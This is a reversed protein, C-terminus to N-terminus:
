TTGLATDVAALCHLRPTDFVPLPSGEQKVLLTIETCGLIVGEAGARRLGGIIDRFSRRDQERIEGHCLRDYIVQHVQEREAAPPVIVEVGYRSEM